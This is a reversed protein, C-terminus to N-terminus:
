ITQILNTIYNKMRLLRTRQGRRFSFGCGREFTGGTMVGEDVQLMETVFGAFGVGLVGVMGGCIARGVGQVGRVADWAGRHAPPAYKHIVGPMLGASLTFLYRLGQFPSKHYLSVVDGLM